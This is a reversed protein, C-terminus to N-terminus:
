REHVTLIGIELDGTDGHFEIVFQGAREATFALEVTQGAEVAEAPVADDYGHLHLVGDADVTIELLVEQGRCIGIADPNLQEGELTAQRTVSTADCDDPITTQPVCAAALLLILLGTLPLVARRPRLRFPSRLM